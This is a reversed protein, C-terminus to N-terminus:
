WMILSWDLVSQLTCDSYRMQRSDDKSFREVAYCFLSFDLNNTPFCGENM